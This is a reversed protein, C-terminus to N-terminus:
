ANKPLNAVLNGGNKGSITSPDSKPLLFDRLRRFISRGSPGRVTKKMLLDILTFRVCIDSVVDPFM